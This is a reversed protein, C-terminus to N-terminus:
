CEIGDDDLLNDIISDAGDFTNTLLRKLGERTVFLVMDDIQDYYFSGDLKTLINLEHWFVWEDDVCNWNDETLIIDHSKHLYYAVDEMCYYTTGEDDTVMMFSYEGIRKYSVGM